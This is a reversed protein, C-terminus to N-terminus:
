LTGGFASKQTRFLKLSHLGLAFGQPQKTKMPKSVTCFSGDMATLGPTVLFGSQNKGTILIPHKLPQKEPKGSNSATTSASCTLFQHCSTRWTCSLKDGNGRLVEGGGGEDDNDDARASPSQMGLGRCVVALM